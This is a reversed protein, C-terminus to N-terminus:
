LLEQLTYEAIEIDEVDRFNFGGEIDEQTYGGQELTTDIYSINNIIYNGDKLAYVKGSTLEVMEQAVEKLNNTKM